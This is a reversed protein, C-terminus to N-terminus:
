PLAVGEAELLAHKMPLGGLFGGPRLGAAVVRHCPLVLPLPNRRCASGVARAATPKRLAKAVAGYTRVQGRPIRRLYRWVKSSFTGEPILVDFTPDEDGELFAVLQRAAAQTVRSGRRVQGRPHDELLLSTLEDLDDRLHVRVIHRNIGAVHLRGYRKSRVPSVHIPITVGAM